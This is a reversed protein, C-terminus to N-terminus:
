YGPGGPPRQEADTATLSAADVSTSLTGELVSDIVAPALFALRLVRTVYSPNVGERLALQKTDIEGERLQAWWGRAKILLRIVSRDPARAVACGGDQVFRMVRGSRTLRVDVHIPLTAPSAVEREIHLATAIAASDCNIEIKGDLIRATSILPVVVAAERAEIRSRLLDCRGAYAALGAPSIM